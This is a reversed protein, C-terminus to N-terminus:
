LQDMQPDADAPAQQQVQQQPAPESDMGLLKAASMRALEQGLSGGYQAALSAAKRVGSGDPGVNGDSTILLSGKDGMCKITFWSPIASDSGRLLEAQAERFQESAEESGAAEY